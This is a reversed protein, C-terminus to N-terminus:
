ADQEGLTQVHQPVEVQRTQTADYYISGVSVTEGFRQVGDSFLRSPVGEFTVDHFKVFGNCECWTFCLQGPLPTNDNQRAKRSKRAPM